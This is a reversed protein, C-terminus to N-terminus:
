TEYNKMDEDAEDNPIPTTDQNKRWKDPALNTLSFILAIPNPALTEVAEEKARVSGDGNYYTKTKTVKVRGLAMDYLSAELKEVLGGDAKKTAELFEEIYAKHKYLTSEGIKLMKAIVDYNVGAVRLATIERLFPQIRQDYVSPRGNPRKAM